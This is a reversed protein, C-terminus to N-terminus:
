SAKAKQALDRAILQLCEMQSVCEPFHKCYGLNARLIAEAQKLHERRVRIHDGEESPPQPSNETSQDRYEPRPKKETGHRYAAPQVPPTGGTRRDFNRRREREVHAKSNQHKLYDHVRITGDTDSRWLGVDILEIQVKRPVTVLFAVPLVGDTLFESAYCLANVWARFARHSLGAIKPHRPVNDNLKIWTMRKPWPFRRDVLWSLDRWGM